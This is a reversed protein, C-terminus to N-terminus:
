GARAARPPRAPQGKKLLEQEILQSMRESREAWDNAAAATRRRAVEAEHDASLLAKEISAIFERPRNACTLILAGQSSNFSVVEPLNTSVVPKGMALYENIKTPVVTATYGNLRYPVIGVDFRRVYGPLDEHAKAGTLYVNPLRRLEAAPSQQPGVLVWSWEPRARAMTAVMEVDFARHIGGVYGIIPRPLRSMLAAAASDGDPRAGPADDGGAFVDLNVGFPFIQVKRRGGLSCREALRPGQAFVLDSMRILARESRLIAHPHPTLEAFDAICYYVVVSRPGRLMRVLSGATDTPLFTMIVDPDFRLRGVARRLLPLLVRGNAARRLRSGFPPLILPSCVHVNPSVEHAGGAPLARTWHSVRRAVRRLDRLGPSRVGTNEVYLVRNGARALRSALEQHGQWNFGWEISSILVIDLGSLM